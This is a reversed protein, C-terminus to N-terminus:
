SSSCIIDLVQDALQTTAAAFCSRQLIDMSPNTTSSTSDRRATARHTIDRTVGGAEEVLLKGACLDWIKPGTHSEWSGEEFSVDFRGCAVNALALGSCGYTRINRVGNRLINQQLSLYRHISHEDRGYGPDMAVLATTIDTTQSVHIKRITGDKTQLYSGQGQIAWFMEESTPNYTVGVLVKKQYLFAVLVCSLGLRHVFNTTGDIPDITWTPDDTLTYQCDSGSSEEGIIQHTPYKSVIHNKIIVECQEDTETVLDVNNSKTAIVVGGVCNGAGGGDCVDITTTVDDRDSRNNSNNSASSPWWVRQIENGALIEAEKAVSLIEELDPINNHNNNNPHHHLHHDHDHTNINTSFSGQPRENSSSSSSDM